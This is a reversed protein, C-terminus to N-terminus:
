VNVRIVVKGFPGQGLRDFAQPVEAFGYERDIVPRIKSMRLARNTKEFAERSGVSLTHITAQKLIFPLIELTFVPSQLLGVIVINGGDVLADLSRAVSEGGVVELVHDVGEDNTLAKAALNWAPERRYNIVADAGLEKVRTLKEDSSSTMIVRAGAAHALQLAFLSVGGTGQVLVTEGPQLHCKDFLARWATVAAIPLTSAEKDSLYEPTSVPGDEDLLVYEALVGPLPLGLFISEEKLRLEGRLWKPNFNTTIRDGVKFRHANSGVAAIVGAADSAPVFPQPHDSGGGTALERYSESQIALKDRYNLSVAGVKLLIQGAGPEPIPHDVLHFPDVTGPLVQWAKMTQKTM